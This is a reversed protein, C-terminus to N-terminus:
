PKKNQGTNLVQTFNKYIGPLAVLWSSLAMMKGELVHPVALLLASTFHKGKSVESRGHVYRCGDVRGTGLEEVPGCLSCGDLWTSLPVGTLHRFAVTPALKIVSLYYLDISGVNLDSIGAVTTSFTLTGTAVEEEDKELTLMVRAGEDM